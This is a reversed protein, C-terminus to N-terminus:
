YHLKVGGYLSMGPEGYAYVEEYDKGFLNDLRGYITVADSFKYNTSLDVTTYSKVFVLGYPSNIDVDKRSSMYRANLGIDGEPTYQYTTGFTVQHRPRRLLDIDKTRNQSLTYTYSSNLALDNNVQWSASNEFGETRAKGANIAAYPPAPNNGILSEIDNRFYTSGFVVAHNFLGQEFGADWGRSQEPRLSGNGYSPDYLQSLSPAKFGTGYTAKITTDTPKFHYGPAVKWTFKDGFQENFDERVGVNAFFDHFTYQDDAFVARNDNNIEPLILTKFHDSYAEAGFTVLHDPILKLHNVWDVTQRSGLQQQRGFFTNFFADYYETIQDRNVNLTSVGLEQVWKGDLLTLEGAVRGNLQRSDNDPQTDDIPRVFSGPSDFQTVVRNYRGNIKATFNDTLKSVINASYTQTSSGDKEHGGFQPAIASIGNTHSESATLSYSTRGLEGSSGVGEKRSNYRGYEAFADVSPKGKGKKTIVNIVGGIAESGYLTSQAGRLIEIHDINDSPLNAFDFADGPDSPDNLRVGDMLVLVHNSNTGRMFVRSTQGLGGNNAVTIGPVNRLLDVVYPKNQRQIDEQSIVTMSSAIQNLPTESRTATVVVPSMSAVEDAHAFVPVSIFASGALLAFRFHSM